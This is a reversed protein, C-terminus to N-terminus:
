WDPLDEIYLPANFTTLDSANREYEKGFVDTIKIKEVLNGPITGKWIVYVSKDGHYFRYQGDAIKEMSSYNSIKKSITNFADYMKQKPCNQTELSTNDSCSACYNPNKKCNTVLAEDAASSRNDVGSYYIRKVGMGLAAIYDKVMQYSWEEETLKKETDSASSHGFQVSTVWIPKENKLGRMFTILPQINFDQPANISCIDLYGSGEGLVKKWYELNQESLSEIEGGVLQVNNNVSKISEYTDKLVNIYAEANGKWDSDDPQNRITWYRIPFKLGEMDNQGNGDYRDVLKKVFEKYDERNCPSLRYEGLQPNEKRYQEPLKQHCISQDRDVYPWITAYLVLDNDQSKRVYDDTQSFDYTGKEKEIEGWIFPGPYPRSWHFDLERMIQYSADPSIFGFFSKDYSEFKAMDLASKTKQAAKKKQDARYVFFASVGILACLCIVTTVIIIIKESRPM